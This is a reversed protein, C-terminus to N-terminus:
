TILCGASQLATFMTFRLLLCTDKVSGGGGLSGKKKGGVTFGASVPPAAATEVRSFRSSFPLFNQHKRVTAFLQKFAPAHSPGTTSSIHLPDIHPEPTVSRDLRPM